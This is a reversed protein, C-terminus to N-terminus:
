VNTDACTGCNCSDHNCLRDAVADITEGERAGGKARAKRETMGQPFRSRGKGKKGKGKKRDNGGPIQKKRQRKGKGKKRDNGAPIQKQRKKGV